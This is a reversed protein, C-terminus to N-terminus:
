YRGRRIDDGDAFSADMFFHGSVLQALAGSSLYAVFSVSFVFMESFHKFRGESSLWAFVFGIFYFVRNSLDDPMCFGAM